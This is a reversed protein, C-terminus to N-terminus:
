HAESMEIFDGHWTHLFVQRTYGNVSLMGIVEGDRLIHLTYYGYFPDAHDDAQTGPLYTDLYQQASEVAEGPTVPLETSNEGPQNPLNGYSGMMGPSGGMMMGMGGGYGAMGEVGSLAHVGYKLNWMMNPGHEPTVALTVPDVLVEMAGAGTSKEVIQAYAHNDFIMIEGLMLDDNEQTALFKEVAQEAEELSLPEPNVYLGSNGMMGTGNMMGYNMMGGGTMNGQNMMGQGMIGNQMMANGNMMGSGYATNGPMMRGPGYGAMGWGTRGIWLGTLVLFAAVVLIGTIILTAKLTNNM